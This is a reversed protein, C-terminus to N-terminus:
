VEETSLTSMIYAVNISDNTVKAEYAAKATNLDDTNAYFIYAHIFGDEIFWETAKSQKSAVNKLPSDDTMNMATKFDAISSWTKSPESASVFKKKVRIAM